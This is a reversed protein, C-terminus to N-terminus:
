IPWGFKGDIELERESFEGNTFTTTSHVFATRAWGDKLQFGPRIASIHLPSSQHYTHGDVMKNSSSSAARSSPLSSSSPSPEAATSRKDSGTRIQKVASHGRRFHERQFCLQPKHFPPNCGIAIM